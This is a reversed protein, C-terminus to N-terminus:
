IKGTIVPAFNAVCALVFIIFWFFYYTFLLNLFKLSDGAADIKMLEASQMWLQM